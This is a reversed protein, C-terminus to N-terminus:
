LLEVKVILVSVIVLTDHLRVDPPQQARWLYAPNGDLVIHGPGLSIKIGFPVKNMWNNPGLGTMILSLSYESHGM